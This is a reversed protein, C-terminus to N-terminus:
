SIAGNAALWSVSEQIAALPSYCPEYGLLRRAKEISCNPSHHLHDETVAADKASVGLKWEDWALFSLRAPQHFWDAMQEAYWRLTLASAAVVHFSQGIAVIRNQIALLFSQAVDKVHVHNLTEM